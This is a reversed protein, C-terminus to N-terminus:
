RMGKVSVFLKQCRAKEKVLGVCHFENCYPTRWEADVAEKLCLHLIGNYMKTNATSTSTNCIHAWILNQDHKTVSLKPKYVLMATHLNKRPKATTHESVKRNQGNYTNICKEAEKQIAYQAKSKVLSWAGYFHGNINNCVSLSLSFHPLPASLFLSPFLTPSFFFFFSLSVSLSLFLCVSMCVSLCVSQYRYKPWYPVISQRFILPFRGAQKKLM